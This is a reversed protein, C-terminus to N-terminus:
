PQARVPSPLRVLRPPQLRGQRTPMWVARGRPLYRPNPFPQPAAARGLLTVDEAATGALIVRTRANALVAARLTPSLQGLDQHALVLGIGYGRIMALVDSLDPSVYQHFEDLYLTHVLANQPGARYAAQVFLHWLLVGLAQAGLGLEAGNLPSVLVLNQALVEDLSFDYPPTLAHALAPHVRLGRLRNLLGLELELQRAPPLAGWEDEFYRTLDADDVQSLLRRRYAPQHLAQEVTELSADEGHAQKVLRVAQVLLVRSVSRYFPHSGPELQDLALALGEGAAAGDGAIPNLHPCDPRTPNFPVVTRGLNLATRRVAAALDGKPEILTVGRGARLDQLIWPHLVTSSKGSGTPGLVQVHLLRDGDPLSVPIGLSTRGVYLGRPARTPLRVLLIGILLAATLSSGPWVAVCAVPLAVAASLRRRGALAVAAGMVAAPGIIFSRTFQSPALVRQSVLLLAALWAAALAAWGAVPHRLMVSVRM